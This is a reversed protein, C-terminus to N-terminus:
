EPYESTSVIVLVDVFLIIGLSSEINQQLHVNM